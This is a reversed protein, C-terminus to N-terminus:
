STASSLSCEAEKRTRCALCEGCPESGQPSYCSWTQEIPVDLKRAQEFVASKSIYLLPTLVCINYTEAAYRFFNWFVPRCDPFRMWDLENCGVAIAEQGTAQAEAVAVSALVLNRGAFVVDNVLPM